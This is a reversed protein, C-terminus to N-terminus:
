NFVLYAHRVIEGGCFQATGIHEYNAYGINQGANVLAVDFYIEEESDDIEFWITPKSNQNQFSLIKFNRRAIIYTLEGQLTAELVKKAM